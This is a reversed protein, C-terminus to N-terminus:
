VVSMAEEITPPMMLKTGSACTRKPAEAGKLQSVETSSHHKKIGFERPGKAVIQQCIERIKIFTADPHLGLVTTM